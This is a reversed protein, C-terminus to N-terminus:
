DSTTNSRAHELLKLLEAERHLSEYHAAMCQLQDLLNQIPVKAQGYCQHGRATEYLKQALDRLPHIM